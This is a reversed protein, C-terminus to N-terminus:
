PGDWLISLAFNGLQMLAESLKAPIFDLIFGAAFGLDDDRVGAWEM